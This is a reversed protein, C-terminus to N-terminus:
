VLIGDGGAARPLPPSGWLTGGSYAALSVDASTVPIPGDLSRGRCRTSILRRYAVAKLGDRSPLCVHRASGRPLFGPWRPRGKKPAHSAPLFGIRVDRRQRSAAAQRGDRLM